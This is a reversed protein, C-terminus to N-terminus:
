RRALRIRVAGSFGKPTLHKIRVTVPRRDLRRLLRRSSVQLRVRKAAGRRLAYRRTAVTQWRGAVRARVYVAGRCRGEAAKGRPCRVGVAFRGRRGVAIRRGAAIRALPAAAAASGRAEERREERAEERAPPAAPREPTEAPDEPAAPRAEPLAPEAPPEPEESAEAFTLWLTDGAGVAQGAARGVPEGDIRARWEGGDGVGDIATVAGDEIVVDRVCGAPISADRAYELASALATGASLLVACLRPESTGDEIALAVPVPTGADVAAGARWVPDGAGARAPPDASFIKGALARVSAETANM